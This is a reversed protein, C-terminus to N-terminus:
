DHLGVITDSGQTGNVGVIDQAARLEVKNSGNEIAERIQQQLLTHKKM